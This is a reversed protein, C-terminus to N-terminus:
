QDQAPLGAPLIFQRAPLQHHTYTITLWEVRFSPTFAIADPSRIGCAIM